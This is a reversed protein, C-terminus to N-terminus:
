QPEKRKSKPNAAKNFLRVYAILWEVESKRLKKGFAPM